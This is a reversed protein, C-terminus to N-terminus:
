ASWERLVRMYYDWASIRAASEAAYLGTEAIMHGNELLCLEGCEEGRELPAQLVAERNIQTRLVIEENERMPIMIDGAACLALSNKKGNKVQAYDVVQGKQIVTKMSYNSFGHDLLSFADKYTNGSKLVTGVLQMNDRFASFVLCKGADSTYGTKVGNGGEYERLTKNRNYFTRTKNGTQTTFERSSVIKCFEKNKMAYAAIVALDYASTYHEKDHLGNPTVFHTNALGLEAAKRNMRGAFAEVSGDIHVAIAVAADNGSVLMLGYVLDRMSLKEGLELYMSSGETGFAEKSVTVTEDMDTNELALIATMIKTTSAMPLRIHANKAGLVKGTGAELVVGAQASIGPASEEAEAKAPVPLTMLLIVCVLALAKSRRSM